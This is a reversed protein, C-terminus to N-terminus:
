KKVLFKDYMYSFPYDWVIGAIIMYLGKNLIYNLILIHYHFYNPILMTFGLALSLIMITNISHWADSFQQIILSTKFGLFSWTKLQGGDIGNVWKNKSSLTINWWNQNFRTPDSFISKDFKYNITDCIAKCCAALTFLIFPITYLM